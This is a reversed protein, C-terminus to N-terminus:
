GQVDSLELKADVWICLGLTIIDVSLSVMSHEHQKIVPAIENLPNRQFLPPYMNGM